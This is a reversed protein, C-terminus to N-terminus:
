RSARTAPGCSTPTCRTPRRAPRPRGGAAVLAQAAVQGGFLRRGPEGSIRGRFLGPDIDELDLLGELGDSAPGDAPSSM